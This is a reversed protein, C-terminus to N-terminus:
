EILNKLFEEDRSGLKQIAYLAFWFHEKIRLKPYSLDTSKYKKMNFFHFLYRGM